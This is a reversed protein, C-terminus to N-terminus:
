SNPKNGSMRIIIINNDKKRSTELGCSKSVISDMKKEADDFHFRDRGRVRMSLVVDDGESLFENVQKIKHEIDHEEINPSFRVEKVHKKNCCNEKKKKKENDYKWKNFDLIKCLALEDKNAEIFCVLDLNANYAKTLADTTKIKDYYQEDLDVLRIFMFIPRKLVFPDNSM